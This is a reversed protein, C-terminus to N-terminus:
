AHQTGQKTKPTRPIELTTAKKAERNRYDKGGQKTPRSELLIKINFFFISAYIQYKKTM